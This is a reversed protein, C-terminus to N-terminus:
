AREAGEAGEDGQDGQVAGQARLEEPGAPLISGAEGGDRGLARNSKLEAVCESRISALSPGDIIGAEEKVAAVFAGVLKRIVSAVPKGPYAKRLWYVDDPDLRLTYPKVFQDNPLKPM